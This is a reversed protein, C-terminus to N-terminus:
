GRMLIVRSHDKDNRWDRTFPPAYADRDGRRANDARRLPSGAIPCPTLIL